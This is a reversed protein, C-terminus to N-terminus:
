VWFRLAAFDAAAPSVHASRTCSSVKLTVRNSRKKLEKTVPVVPPLRLDAAQDFALGVGRVDVSQEVKKECCAYLALAPPEDPATPLAAPGTCTFVRLTDDEACRQWLRQQLQHQMAPPLPVSAAMATLAPGLVRQTSQASGSDVTRDVVASSLGSSGGSGRPLTADSVPASANFGSGKSENWAGDSASQVEKTAPAIAGKIVEFKKKTSVPARGSGSWPLPAKSAPTGATADQLPAAAWPKHPSGPNLPSTDANGSAAVLGSSDCSSSSQHASQLQRYDFFPVSLDLSPDMTVKFAVFVVCARATSSHMNKGEHARRVCLHILFAHEGYSVFPGQVLCTSFALHVM